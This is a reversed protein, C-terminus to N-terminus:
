KQGLVTGCGGGFFPLLRRIRIVWWLWDVRRRFLDLVTTFYLIFFPGKQTEVLGVRPEAM